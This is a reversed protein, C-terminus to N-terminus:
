ESGDALLFPVFLNNVKPNGALVKVRLVNNFVDQTASGCHLCEESNKMGYEGSEELVPGGDLEVLTDEELFALRKNPNINLSLTVGRRGCLNHLNFCELRRSCELVKTSEHNHQTM